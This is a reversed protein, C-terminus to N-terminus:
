LDYARRYGCRFSFEIGGQLGRVGTRLFRALHRLGGPGLDFLSDILSPKGMVDQQYLPLSVPLIAAQCRRKAWELGMENTQFRCAGMIDCYSVVTFQFIRRIFVKPVLNRLSRLRKPYM